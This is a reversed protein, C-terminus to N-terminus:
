QCVPKRCTYSTIDGPVAKKHPCCSSVTPPYRAHKAGPIRSQTACKLIHETVTIQAGSRRRRTTVMEGPSKRKAKETDGSNNGLGESFEQRFRKETEELMEKPTFDGSLSQGVANNYSKLPHHLDSTCHRVHWLYWISM